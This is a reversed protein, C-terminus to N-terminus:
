ELASAYVKGGRLYSVYLYPTWLIEVLDGERLSRGNFQIGNGTRNLDQHPIPTENLFVWYQDTNRPIHLPLPLISSRAVSRTVTTEWGLWLAQQIRTPTGLAKKECTNM